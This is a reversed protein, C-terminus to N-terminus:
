KFPVTAVNILFRKIEDDSIGKSVYEVEESYDIDEFYCLQERFLKPNFFSGFIDKTRASIEEFSFHFKLLFYLDVYDKWKARGGLAYSKMAALDLLAPMNIVNEFKNTAEIKYPFHFFTLKSKNIILHIQDYAEFITEQVSFHNEEIIAKIQNRNINKKTFLDFDISHRHGIYLAIATGGVLYYDKSFSKILPLLEKQNETLIEKHM